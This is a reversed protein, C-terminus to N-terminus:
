GWGVVLHLLAAIVGTWLTGARGAFAAIAPYAGALLLARATVGQLHISLSPPETMLLVGLFAGAGPPPKIVSQWPLGDFITLYYLYYLQPALWLALYALGLTLALDLSWLGPGPGFRASLWRAKALSLAFLLTILAVSLGALGAGALPSLSYFSDAPYGALLARWVPAAGLASLVLAAPAVAVDRPALGLLLVLGLAFGLAAAPTVPDFPM